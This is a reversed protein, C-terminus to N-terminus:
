QSEIAPLQNVLPLAYDFWTSDIVAGDLGRAVRLVYHVVATGLRCSEAVTAPAGFADMLAEKVDDKSLYPLQLESALARALTTKGSAAM